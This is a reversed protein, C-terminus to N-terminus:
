IPIQLVIQGTASPPSSSKELEFHQMLIIRAILLATNSISFVSGHFILIRDLDESLEDVDDDGNVGTYLAVSRASLEM